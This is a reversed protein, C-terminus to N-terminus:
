IYSESIIIEPTEESTNNTELNKGELPYKKLIKMLGDITQTIKLNAKKTLNKHRIVEMQFEIFKSDKLAKKGSEILEKEIENLFDVRSCADLFSLAQKTQPGLKIDVGQHESVKKYQEKKFENLAKEVQTHHYNHLNLSKENKKAKFIKITEIFTKQKIDQKKDVFYFGNRRDSRIFSITGNKLLNNKRGVRQRKSMNQIKRFYIENNKKFERLDMLFSLKENKEEEINKDFIGFTKTEEAEHYIQSDEGLAEHFSQLKLFAKQELKIDGEVNSTPFFNYVHIEKAKSGIRNVRGIRQILRTSNWPTDYNIIINSRHLNIGEALVETTILINYDNKKKVM